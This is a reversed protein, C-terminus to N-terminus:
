MVNLYTTLVSQINKDKHGQIAAQPAIKINHTCNYTTKVRLLASM